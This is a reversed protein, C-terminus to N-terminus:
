QNTTDSFDSSGDLRLLGSILKPVLVDRQAALAFIDLEDTEIRDDLPSCLEDFTAVLQDTPALWPMSHFATKNLAGFVTGDAEFLEFRSRLARMSYYTYPKSRSKHRVAAVGRGICCEDLAVNVDGVPARVSVLTDGPKGHRKPSTCYMRYGPYRFGFDTRGQYFPIGDGAQNYTGGPPSQGMTIRFDEGLTRIEWGQPIEGLESLVLRDPFLGVIQPDVLDLYARAREVTWEGAPATGNGSPPVASHVHQKLAAKARVPDFDVFWSKFLARAMEELTQNMRRNLEIKDDLTGLIHAIARQEALPPLPVEVSQILTPSINPQASGYGLGEIEARVDRARLLYFLFPQLLKNPDHITFRGVRQNLVAPLDYSRVIAVDGVYGTMAILLDGDRLKFDGARAATEESVFSCSEMALNGDKVNAIKVVPVGESTWDRSKFAYGSRVTVAEGLSVKSWHGEATLDVQDQLDMYGQEIERHFSEPLRAWDYAQILIPINSEELAEILDLYEGGLPELTPSRLVLDLDSGEHSDGSVRSGYAWVEVGPVHQRLLAELQERYRRPLNLCDTM